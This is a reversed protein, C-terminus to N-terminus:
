PVFLELKTEVLDTISLSPPFVDEEKHARRKHPDDRGRGKVSAWCWPQHPLHTLM